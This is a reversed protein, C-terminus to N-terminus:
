GGAAAGALDPLLASLIMRITMAMMTPINTRPAPM